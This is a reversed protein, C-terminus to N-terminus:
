YNESVLSAHQVFGYYYVACVFVLYFLESDNGPNNNYNELVIFFNFGNNAKKNSSIFRFVSNIEALNWPIM